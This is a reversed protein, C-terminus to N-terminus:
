HSRASASLNGAFLTEYRVRPFVDLFGGDTANAITVGRSAALRRLIEYGKWLKRMYELKYRYTGLTLDSALEPQSDLTPGEYFHGGDDVHALWDHDAGILYIPSAGLYTAIMLSTMLVTGPSPLVRTLDVDPRASHILHGAKAIFRTHAAPLLNEELIRRRHLVPAFYTPSIMRSTLDHFFKQSSESGDYYLDDTLTYYTPQLSPVLPHKWFANVAFTLEGQLLSLDLNALSPGNGILFARRGRHGDELEANAAIADREEPTLCAEIEVDMLRQAAGELYSAFSTLGVRASRRALGAVGTERLARRIRQLNSEDTRPYLEDNKM